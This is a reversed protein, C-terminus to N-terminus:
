VIVAFRIPFALIGFTISHGVFGGESASHVRISNNNNVVLENSHSAFQFLHEPLSTQKKRQYSFQPGRNPTSRLILFYSFTLKSVYNIIVIVVDHFQWKLPWEIILGKRPWTPEKQNRHWFLYYISSKLHARIMHGIKFYLKLFDLFNFTQFNQLLIIRSPPPPHTHTPQFAM